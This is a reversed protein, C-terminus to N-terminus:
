FAHPGGITCDVTAFKSASSATEDRVCDLERMGNGSCSGFPMERSCVSVVKRSGWETCYGFGSKVNKHGVENKRDQLQKLRHM